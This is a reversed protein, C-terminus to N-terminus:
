APELEYHYLSCHIDMGDKTKLDYLPENVSSDYGPHENGNKAVHTVILVENRFNDYNDNDNESSVKVKQGIKYAKM